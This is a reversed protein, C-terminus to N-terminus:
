SASRQVPRRGGLRQEWRYAIGDAPLWHQIQEQAVHPHRRSGPFRRVDVVLGVDAERLLRMLQSKSAEGHRFTLLATMPEVEHGSGKLSQVGQVREQM